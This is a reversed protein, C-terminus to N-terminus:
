LHSWLKRSRILSITARCVGYKLSLDGNSDKDNKIIELVEKETLKSGHHAEGKKDVQGDRHALSANEGRSICALNSIRNNTKDGNIHHVVFGKPIEEAYTQWMLRHARRKKWVNNERIIYLHYGDRDIFPKLYKGGYEQGKFVRKNSYVRGKEDISYKKDTSEILKM